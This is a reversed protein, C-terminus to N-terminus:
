SAQPIEPLHKLLFQRVRTEVAARSQPAFMSHDLGDMVILRGSAQWRKLSAPARQQLRQLGLNDQGYILLPETRTAAVDAGRLPNPQLRLLDLVWWFPSPMNRALYRGGRTNEFFRQVWPHTPPAARRLRAPSGPPDPLYFLQANIAVIGTLGVSAAAADVSLFAGSCLGVAVTPTLGRHRM